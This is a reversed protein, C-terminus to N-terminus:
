AHGKEVELEYGASGSEDSSMSQKNLIEFTVGVNYMEYKLADRWLTNGNPKDTEYAHEVSTPIEIGYKLTM